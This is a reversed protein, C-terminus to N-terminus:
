SLSPGDRFVVSKLDSKQLRRRIALGNTVAKDFAHPTTYDLFAKLGAAFIANCYSYDNM